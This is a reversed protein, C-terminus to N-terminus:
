FGYHMLEERVEKMFEPDIENCQRFNNQAKDSDGMRHYTDGISRLVTILARNYERLAEEFKQRGEPSHRSLREGYDELAEARDFFQTPHLKSDTAYVM